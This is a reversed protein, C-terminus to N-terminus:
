NEDYQVMKADSDDCGTTHNPSLRCKYENLVPVLPFYEQSSVEKNISETAVHAQRPPSGRFLAFVPPSVPGSVPTLCELLM